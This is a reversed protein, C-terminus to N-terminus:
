GGKAATATSPPRFEITLRGSRDPGYTTSFLILEREDGQVTELNKVFM